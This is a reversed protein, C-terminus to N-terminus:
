LTLSGYNWVRAGLSKLWKARKGELSAESKETTSGLVRKQLYFSSKWASLRDTVDM